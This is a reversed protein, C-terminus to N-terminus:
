LIPVRRQELGKDHVLPCIELETRFGVVKGIM